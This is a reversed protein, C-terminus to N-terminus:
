VDDLAPASYGTAVIAGSGGITATTSPGPPIPYQTTAASPETSTMPVLMTGGSPSTSGMVSR